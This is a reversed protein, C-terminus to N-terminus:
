PKSLLKHAKIVLHFVIKRKVKVNQGTELCGRTSIIKNNCSNNISSPITKSKQVM